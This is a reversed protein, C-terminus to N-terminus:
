ETFHQVVNKTGSYAGVPTLGWYLGTLLAQTMEMGMSGRLMIALFMGVVLSALPVLRSPLGAMKLVSMLGIIVGPIGIGFVVDPVQM